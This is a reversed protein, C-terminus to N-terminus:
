DCLKDGMGTLEEPHDQRMALDGQSTAGLLFDEKYTSLARNDFLNMQNCYCVFMYAGACRNCMCKSVFVVVCPVCASM